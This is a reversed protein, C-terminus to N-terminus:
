KSGEYLPLRIIFKAGKGLESEVSIVGNHREIIARVIALGLGTGKAKMTFFPDFIKRKEIEGIGHGSDEVSLIAKEQFVSLSLRIAGGSNSAEIANLILNLIVQHMKESDAYVIISDDIQSTLIMGAKDIQNQLQKIAMQAIDSLNTRELKIERPRAFDLFEKVTSDIRRIEKTIIEQFENKEEPSAEDSGLIEVAGKISALPNKIEHAVGAAMQGILSLKHSRELQLQTEEHSKRIKSERDILTGTILALAFYFVIEVLESSIDVHPNNLLFIYPQVLISIIMAITFGGRLGFWASGMVIPIYCLRSHIAHGLESHGLLPEIVWGYHIALTLTTIGSLIAIKVRSSATINM